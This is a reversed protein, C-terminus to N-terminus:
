PYVPVGRAHRPAVCRALLVALRALAGRAGRSCARACLRASTGCVLRACTPASGCMRRSYPLSAALPWGRRVPGLQVVRATPGRRQLRARRARPPAPRGPGSRLPPKGCPSSSRRRPLSLSTRQPFPYLPSLPLCNKSLPIVPPGWWFPSPPAYGGAHVARTPLV